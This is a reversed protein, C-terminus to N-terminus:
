GLRRTTFLHPHIHLPIVTQGVPIWENRVGEDKMLMRSKMGSLVSPSRLSTASHLSSLCLSSLGLLNKIAALFIPIVHKMM